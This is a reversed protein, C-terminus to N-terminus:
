VRPALRAEVGAILLELGNRFRVPADTGLCVRKFDVLASLERALYEVHVGAGGYVEPPFERTLVAVRM